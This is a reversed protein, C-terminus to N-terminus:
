FIHQNTESSSCTHLKKLLVSSIEMFNSTLPNVLIAMVKWNQNFSSLLLVKWSPKCANRWTHWTYSVLYVDTTMFFTKYLPVCMLALTCLDKDGPRSCRTHHHRVNEACNTCKEGRMYLITDTCMCEASIALCCQPEISWKLSTSGCYPVEKM